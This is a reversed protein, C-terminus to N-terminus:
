TLNDRIILLDFINIFGDKNLDADPNWNPDGPQSGIADRVALMDFINVFDDGNVDGLIKIRVTGDIYTNDAIDTEGAVTTAVGTITYNGHSVGTTDWSSGLTTSAGAGLSVGTFVEVTIEDGIVATDTDAYVYVDFTESGTGENVAAVDIGVHDGVYVLTVNVTVSTVAVDNVGAVPTTVDVYATGGKGPDSDDVWYVRYTQGDKPLTFYGPNLGNAINSGAPDFVAWGEEANYIDSGSVYYTIDSGTESDVTVSISTGPDLAHCGDCAGKDPLASVLEFKMMTFILAAIMAISLTLSILGKYKM